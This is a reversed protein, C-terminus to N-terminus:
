TSLDADMAIEDAASTRSRRSCAACGVSGCEDVARIVGRPDRPARRRCREADDQGFTHMEREFIDRLDILGEDIQSLSVHVTANFTERRVRRIEGRDPSTSFIDNMANEHM